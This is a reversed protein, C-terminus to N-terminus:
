KGNNDKKKNKRRNAFFEILSDGVGGWTVWAAFGLSYILLLPLYQGIEEWTAPPSQFFDFNKQLFVSIVLFFLFSGIFLVAKNKRIKM